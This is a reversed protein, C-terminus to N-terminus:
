TIAETYERVMASIGADARSRATLSPAVVEDHDALLTLAYWVITDHHDPAIYPEDTDASLTQIARRYAGRLTYIRDPVPGACIHRQPDFAIINPRNAGPAGFDYADRWIRYDRIRLRTEDARGIAPDYLSFPSFDDAEPMWSGFDTIGLEAATYRAQSAALSATFENRTFTWDPRLRQIMEWARATWEVIKEQRGVAGTVSSLRQSQGITGSEREVRNVLQLFTPM